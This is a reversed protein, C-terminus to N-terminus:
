KRKYGKAYQAKIRPDIVAYLLDVILVIIGIVITKLIICGTVMVTDRSKLSDVILRGVGPWAFVTETVVSGGLCYAFQGGAITVIPILANRLAHKLIVKREPVGKARATQLYDQRIVDLM